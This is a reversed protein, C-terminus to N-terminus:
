DLLISNTKWKAVMKLLIAFLKQTKASDFFLIVTTSNWLAKIDISYYLNCSM